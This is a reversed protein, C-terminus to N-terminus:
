LPTDADTKLTDSIEETENPVYLFKRQLMQLSRYPVASALGDPSSTERAPPAAPATRTPLLTCFCLLLDQPVHPQSLVSTKQEASLLLFTQKRTLDQGALKAFSFLVFLFFFL